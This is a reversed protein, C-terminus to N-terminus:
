QALEWEAEKVDPDEGSHLLKAENSKELADTFRELLSIPIERDKKEAEESEGSLFGKGSLLKLAVNDQHKKPDTGPVFKAQMTEEIREVSKETLKLLRDSIDDGLNEKVREMTSRIIAQAQPDNLIQSVRVESCKMYQAIAKNDWGNLHLIVVNEHKPKWNKIPALSSM